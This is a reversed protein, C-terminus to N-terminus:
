ATNEPIGASKMAKLMGRMGGGNSNLHNIFSFLSQLNECLWDMQKGLSDIRYALSELTVVVVEEPPSETEEDTQIDTM